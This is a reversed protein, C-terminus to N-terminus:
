YARVNKGEMFNIFSRNVVKNGGPTPYNGTFYWDGKHGPIAEHLGEVSQYIIETEANIDDPRLLETIKNTVQAPTFLDYIQKVLNVAQERPLENMIKAKEYVEDLLNERFSEKLLAVVAQFAVLDSLKAMDIGYCDPYRIQPASSVVIIRKPGLRDLIRFISQKLTTGRVISDDVTVLTDIGRRVVGYTTDYVHAAKDNRNIDNTIFTRLKTDKLAIKEVRPHMALLKKLRGKDNVNEIKELENEKAKDLYHEVEEVMGLFAVEATNPIFSFVTNEIDYNIAKLITPAIIKGLNKREKYIDKDNGRSFYIREFSCSKKEGPKIVQVESITKDRKVILAHGPKLEKIQEVPVNFGTQIAPRESTAVVIEDDHYYFAPRIGNPDRLVFSDGHGLLGAITYGGDWRKSANFLIEKLDLHQAILASIETNSHGANKYKLFLKENQRDLFHGIKELITITDTKERPHQGLDILKQFLEDVNTLNFNGAIVLNKTLWNNQRKFPHCYENGFKGYTGYRVHGLLLESFFPVNKKLWEEDQAKNPKRVQIDALRRNIKGFIEELANSSASRVRHIIPTGPPMDFKIGALGAGDQGRNHQKEMLLYLKHIGYFHTGYKEKYFSLPKLLRILAIGCHEHIEDSM